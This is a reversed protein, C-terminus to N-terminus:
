FEFETINFAAVELDECKKVIIPNRIVGVSCDYYNHLVSDTGMYSKPNSADVIIVSYKTGMMNICDECTSPIKVLYDPNDVVKDQKDAYKYIVQIPKTYRGYKCNKIREKNIVINVIILKEKDSCKKVVGNIKEFAQM